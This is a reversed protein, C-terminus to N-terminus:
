RVTTKNEQASEPLDGEWTWGKIDRVEELWDLNEEESPDQSVQLSQRRAEKALKPNYPNSEHNNTAM